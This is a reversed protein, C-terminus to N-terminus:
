QGGYAGVSGDYFKHQVKEQPEGYPCVYQHGPVVTGLVLLIQGLCDMGGHEEGQVAAQCYSHHADQSGPLDQEPHLCRGLNQVQGCLVQLYVKKSNYESQDVVEATGYEPRHSIGPPWEVVEGYCPYYIDDQVKYKYDLELPIHSSHGGGCDDGLRNGAGKDYDAHHPIFPSDM